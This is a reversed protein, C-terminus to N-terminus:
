KHCKLKDIQKFLDNLTEANSKKCSECDCSSEFYEYYWKNIVNKIDYTIDKRIKDMLKKQIKPYNKMMFLRSEESVM